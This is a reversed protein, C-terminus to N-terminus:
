SKIDNKVTMLKALRLDDGSAVDFVEYEIGDTRYLPNKLRVLYNGMYSDVIENNEDSILLSYLEKNEEWIKKDNSKSEFTKIYKMIFTTIKKIYLTQFCM